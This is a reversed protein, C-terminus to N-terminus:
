RKVYEEPAKIEDPKTKATNVFEDVCPPCCFQYTKGGIVWSFKPNAKTLTIPCIREGVQPELNHAAMKGKFKQSATMKGNAEIDQATYIGGPTLYLQREEDDEVKAPLAHEDVANQFSVRFREAGIRLVPITVDLQKGDLERPFRGVFQSTKGKADGSQPEPKLVFSVSDTAGLKKVYATLTQGETELLTSEDKGLLFLRLVGGKEFVAEAHYSDRGISVIIGGHSGPKHVHEGQEEKKTEPEPTSNSCGAILFAFGACLAVLSFKRVM